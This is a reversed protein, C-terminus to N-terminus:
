LSKTENQLDIKEYIDLDLMEINTEEFHMIAFVNFCVAALHDETRDGSRYQFLHRLASEYCRSVPIGMERNRESYKKAGRAMLEALRTLAPISILDYRAKGENTDRM